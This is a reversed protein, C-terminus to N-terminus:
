FHFNGAAIDLVLGPNRYSHFYIMDGISGDTIAPCYVPINNKACWYYVSEPNNIELGMRHIFKSPTWLTNQTKQEELMKDLIPMIFDEFKCYNDNPM